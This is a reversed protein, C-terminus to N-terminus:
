STLSHMMWETVPMGRKKGQQEGGDRTM